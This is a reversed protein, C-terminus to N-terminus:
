NVVQALAGSAYQGAVVQLTFGQHLPQLRSRYLTETGRRFEREMQGMADLQETLTLVMDKTVVRASATAPRLSDTQAASMVACLALPLAWVWGLTKSKLHM